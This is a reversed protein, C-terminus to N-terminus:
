IAECEVRRLFQLLLKTFRDFVFEGVEAAGDQSSGGVVPPNISSGILGIRRVEIFQVAANKGDVLTPEGNIQNQGVIRVVDGGQKGIPLRSITENSVDDRAVCGEVDGPLAQLLEFVVWGPARQQFLQAEIEFLQIGVLM